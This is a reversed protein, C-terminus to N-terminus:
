PRAPGADGREDLIVRADLVRLGKGVDFVAAPNLDVEAIQPFAEALRSLCLLADVLASEHCPPRGRLGKLVPYARIDSIMARADRSGLPGVRIAVDRLVEVFIGGLGFLLVPGFYPDRKMGLIVERGGRVMAQLYAGEIKAEPVRRSVGQVLEAYAGAAEEPDRLDLRVGGVDTKHSIKPSLIKLVQPQPLDDAAKRVEAASRVVRGKAVPIGCAEV